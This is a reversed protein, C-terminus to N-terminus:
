VEEMEFDDESGWSEYGEEMADAPQRRMARCSFLLVRRLKQNYFFYHLAWMELHQRDFPNYDPDPTFAFVSCEPLDFEATVTNWVAQQLTNSYAGAFTAALHSDLTSIALAVPESSFQDGQLGCFDNSPFSNNLAIVLMILKKRSASESLPGLASPSVVATPSKALAEYSKNLNHYVAKDQNTLKCSYPDLRIELTCEANELQSLAVTIEEFQPIQLFKM